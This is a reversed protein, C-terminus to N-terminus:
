LKKEISIIQDGLLEYSSSIVKCGKSRVTNLGEVQMTTTNSGCKIAIKEPKEHYVVFNNRNIQYAFEGIKLIDLPCNHEAEHWLNKYMASLCDTRWDKLFYNQDCFYVKEIQHCQQLENSHVLKFKDESEDIAIFDDSHQMGVLGDNLHHFIPRMKLLRLPKQGEEILPVKIHVRVYGKQMIETKIPLRYYERVRQSPLTLGKKEAKENLHKLADALTEVRILTPSVKGGLLNAAEKILNNLYIAEMDLAESVQLFFFSDNLQHLGFYEEQALKYITNNLEILNEQQRSLAVEHDQIAHVLHDTNQDQTAEEYILTSIAGAAIGALAIFQPRPSRKTRVWTGQINVLEPDFEMGATRKFLRAESMATMAGLEVITRAAERNHTQCTEKTARVEKTLEQDGGLFIDCVQNINTKSEMSFRRFDVDFTISGTEVHGSLDGFHDFIVGPDYKTVRFDAANPNNEAQRFTRENQGHITLALTLALLIVLDLNFPNM